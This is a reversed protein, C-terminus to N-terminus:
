DDEKRRFIIRALGLILIMVAMIFALKAMNANEGGFSPFFGAVGSFMCYGVVSNATESLGPIETILGM